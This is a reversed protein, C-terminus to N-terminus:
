ITLFPKVDEKTKERKVYAQKDPLRRDTSLHRTM